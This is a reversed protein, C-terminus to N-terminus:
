NQCGCCIQWDTRGGSTFIVAAALLGLASLSGKGLGQLGGEIRFPHKSSQETQPGGMARCQVAGHQRLRPVPTARSQSPYLSITRSGVRGAVGRIALKQHIASSCQQLCIQPFFHSLSQDPSCVRELNSAAYHALFICFRNFIRHVYEGTNLSAAVGIGAKKYHWFM